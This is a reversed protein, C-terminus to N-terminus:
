KALENRINQLKIKIGEEKEEKKIDEFMILARKLDEIHKKNLDNMIKIYSIAMNAMVEGRDERSTVGMSKIIDDTLKAKDSTDLKINKTKM